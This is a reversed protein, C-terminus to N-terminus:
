QAPKQGTIKSKKQPFASMPSYEREQTNKPTNADTANSAFGTALVSPICQYMAYRRPLSHIITKNQRKRKKRKTSDTRIRIYIGNYVLPM